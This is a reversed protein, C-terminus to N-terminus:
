KIFKTKLYQFASTKEIKLNVGFILFLYFIFYNVGISLVSVFSQWLSDLRVFNTFLLLHFVLAIMWYINSATLALLLCFPLWFQYIVDTFNRLPKYVFVKRKAKVFQYLGRITLYIFPIILFGLISNIWVIQFIIISFLVVEVVLSILIFLNSKRIGLIRPLTLYGIRKDNFIDVIQHVFINRLGVFFMLVTYLVVVAFDFANPHILFFTYFSLLLPILYAYLCDILNSLFPNKKVRFPKVSYIIYLFFQLSLLALSIWDFPLVFWPSITCFLLLVVIFFSYNNSIRTLKNVKGAKTDDEIDFYENIFYGLGAIGFTTLLSLLLHAVLDTSLPIDLITIWLYLHGFILPVFSYLWDNTRILKFFSSDVISKM